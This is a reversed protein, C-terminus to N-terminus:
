NVTDVRIATLKANAAGGNSTACNM